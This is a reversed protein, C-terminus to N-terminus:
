SKKNIKPLKIQNFRSIYSVSSLSTIKYIQGSKDEVVLACTTKDVDIIRGTLKKGNLSYRITRDYYLFKQKYANMHKAPNKIDIYIDFFKNLVTKMIIMPISPSNEDFVSSIMDTLRPSFFKNDLKLAFTVILYEYSSHSDLKGEISCGGIKQNEYYLDSVWGIKAKKTIHEEFAGLLAVASLPALLGAQSPFFSPRLICSIFVGHEVAGEPIRTGTIQSKTQNESFVVYRDPKGANAYERALELTSPLTKWYELKINNGDSARFTTMEKFEYNM